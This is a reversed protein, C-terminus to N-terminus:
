IASALRTKMAMILSIVASFVLKHARQRSLNYQSTSQGIKSRSVLIYLIFDNLILRQTFKIFIQSQFYTSYVCVM